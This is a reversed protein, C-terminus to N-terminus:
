TKAADNAEAAVEIIAYASKLKANKDALRAQNRLANHTPKGKHESDLDELFAAREAALMQALAQLLQTHADRAREEASGDGLQGVIVVGLNKVSEAQDPDRKQMTSFLHVVDKELTGELLTAAHPLEEALRVENDVSTAEDKASKRRAKKDTKLDATIEAAKAKGEAKAAKKAAKLADRDPLQEASTGKVANVVRTIVGPQDASASASASATDSNSLGLVLALAACAPIHFLSKM